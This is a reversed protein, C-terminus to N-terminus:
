HQHVVPEPGKSNSNEVFKEKYSSQKAIPSYCQLQLGVPRSWVGTIRFDSQEEQSTTQYAPNSLPNSILSVSKCSFTTINKKQAYLKM